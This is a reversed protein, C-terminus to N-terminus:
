KGAEKEKIALALNKRAEIFPPYLRLAIKFEQIAEDLQGAGQYIVGLNHHIGPSDPKLILALRYEQIAEDIRKQRQHSSGLNQHAIYNKETVNIAHEFLTISTRWHGVQFWTTIILFM